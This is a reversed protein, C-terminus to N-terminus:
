VIIIVTVFNFIYYKLIKLHIKCPPHPYAGGLIIQSAFFFMNMHM